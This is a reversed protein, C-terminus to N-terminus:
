IGAQADSILDGLISPPEDIYDATIKKAMEAKVTTEFEAVEPTEKGALYDEAITSNKLANELIKAAKSMVESRLIERTKVPAAANADSDLLTLSSIIRACRGNSCVTYGEDNTCDVLADAFSERLTDIRDANSRSNVRNWINDVMLKEYDGIATNHGIMASLTKRARELKNPSLSKKLYKYLEKRGIHPTDDLMNLEVVNDYVKKIDANVHSDHVNQPDSTIKVVPSDKLKQRVNRVATRAPATNIVPTTDEVRDLIHDAHYDGPNNELREVADQYYMIAIEDDGYNYRLLDGIVFANYAPPNNYQTEVELAGALAANSEPTEEYGFIEKYHIEAPTYFKDRTPKQRQKRCWFILLSIMLIGLIVWGIHSGM